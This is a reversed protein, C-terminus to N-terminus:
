EGEESVSKIDSLALAMAVFNHELKGADPRCAIGMETPVPAALPLLLVSEPAFRAMRSPVLAVGLGAQVLCLVTQLQMADQAVHPKFGAAQCALFVLSHLVSLPSNVIFPCGALEALDIVGRRALPHNEPVAAVLVDTEIVELALSARSLVPLRVLGIHLRREDIERAIDLSTMERLELEVQPFRARFAPIIRVLCQNIASGVFGVSLRGTEGRAGLRVAQRVLEAQMLAERAPQLAAQGAPTLQVGRPGREFMPAGLEEELKRIAVTLPPQSIALLEAARHFNLVEALKSFYRLQRLDM